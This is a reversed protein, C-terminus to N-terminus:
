GTPKQADTWTKSMRRGKTVRDQRKRRATEEGGSTVQIGHEEQLIQYLEVPRWGRARGEDFVAAETMKMADSVWQKFANKGRTTFGLAASILRQYEEADKPAPDRCAIAMIRMSCQVLYKLCWLPPQYPGDLEGEEDIWRLCLGGHWHHHSM